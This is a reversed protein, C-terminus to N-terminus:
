DKRQAEKLSIRVRLDGVKSTFHVLIQPGQNTTFRSGAPDIMVPPSIQCPYGLQSLRTAANGTIINALEGLASLGLDDNWTKVEEGLMITIIRKATDVGLGYLVNGELKGSIGIITTIDETTFQHSVLEAKAFDLSQKLEKDWVLKAPALFSNVYQEKM